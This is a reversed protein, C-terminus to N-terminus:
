WQLYRADPIMGAAELDQAVAALTAGKPVEYVISGQPIHLPTTVFGQYEMWAWGAVMSAVLVFFGILKNM